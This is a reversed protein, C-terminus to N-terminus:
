LLICTAEPYIATFFLTSPYVALLLLARRAIRPGLLLGTLRELYVAAMAIAFLNWLTGALVEASGVELWSFVPYLLRLILPFIPRFAYLANSPDASFGDIATRMYYLSDWRALGYMFPLSVDPEPPPRNTYGFATVVVFLFLVISRSAVLPNTLIRRAFSRLSM